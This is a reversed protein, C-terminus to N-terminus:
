RLLFLLQQMLYLQHQRHEQHGQLRVLHHQRNNHIVTLEKCVFSYFLDKRKKYKLFYVLRQMNSSM